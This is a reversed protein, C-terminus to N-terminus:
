PACAFASSCIIVNSRQPLHKDRSCQRSYLPDYLLGSYEGRDHHTDNAAIKQHYLHTYPAEKSQKGYSHFNLAAM